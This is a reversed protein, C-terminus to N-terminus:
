VSHIDSRHLLLLVEHMIMFHFRKLEGRVVIVNDSDFILMNYHLLALVKPWIGLSGDLSEAM